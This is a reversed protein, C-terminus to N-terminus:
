VRLLKIIGVGHSANYCLLFMKLFFDKKLQNVLIIKVDESSGEMGEEALWGVRSGGVRGGRGRGWGENM